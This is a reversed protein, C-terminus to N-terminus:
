TERLSQVTEDLARRLESLTTGGGQAFDPRGGGRGGLIECARRMAANLDAKLEASRAFVLRATTEDRAALLAIVGAHDALKHALLKAEDLDRDTFIRAIIRVGEVAATAAILERAETQAALEALARLRHRLRKNEDQLRAVADLAEDRSVSFRRAVAESTQNAARYDRLARVGCVFHVRTMQHAREWGRVAILGVEGTRRAHTGGCPSFDFDDIEVVRVCDSIFSERRLPMRAAEEPTVIHTRIERDAFVIENALDEAQAIAAEIEDPQLELTLDVEATRETIRFGRTEAGFLRFFAQSLIHQGTHQQRLELRRTRDVAGAVEDGVRFAAEGALRHLIRGEDAISVEIVKAQNIIGTDGPQGGGEPYFATQDLVVFCNGDLTLVEEVRATFEMLRSDRWYLKTTM